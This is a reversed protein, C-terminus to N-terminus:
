PCADGVCVRDLALRRALRQVNPDNRPLKDGLLNRLEHPDKVLDYYERFTVSGDDDYWQIYQFRPRRISGWGPVTPSDSSKWYELLIRHRSRASLLSQGDLPYLLTPIVDAADMLTPLIDVNAALRDDLAGEAVHEPWRVLFPVRVSETYPFRKEEGIRHEGWLYGNDSTFIALTDSTEGSAELQDFIRQVMDDVSMLTRLQLARLHNAQQRTYTRWQVWSPKDSIDREGFAPGPMWPPVPADVYPEDPTFDSHPAQPTVELYWPTSDSAEFGQLINLSLDGLVNTSYGPHTRVTGDVNFVPDIYGGGFIAWRDFNPPDQGVPWTNFFKGAFGTQYGAEHLYAQITARQDFAQVDAADTNTQVGTNHAYRGSFISSRSPCCLPTTVVYNPFNTGQDEFLARTKPMVSMTDAAARQDDTVILLINPRSSPVLPAPGSGGKSPMSMLVPVLFASSAMAALLHRRSSRAELTM